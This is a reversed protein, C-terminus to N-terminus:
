KCGDSEGKEGGINDDEIEECHGNADCIKTLANWMPCDKCKM